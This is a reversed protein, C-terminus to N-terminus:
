LTKGDIWEPELHVSLIHEPIGHIRKRIEQDLVSITTEAIERDQIRMGSLGKCWKEGVHLILCAFGIDAPIRCGMEKLCYYQGFHFGIVADPRWKQFWEEFAQRDNLFGTFPPVKEVVADDRDQRELIGALRVSDDPLHPQHRCIAAGIRRYGAALVKDWVTQVSLYVDGIVRHYKHKWSTNTNFIVTFESLDLEYAISNERMLRGIIVGCYGQQYLMTEFKRASKVDKLNYPDLFYGYLAASERLFHFDGAQRKVDLPDESDYLYALPMLNAKPGKLRNGSGMISFVMNPRYGMKRALVQIKEKTDRAILPSNRLARSVTSKDVGAECAIHIITPSKADHRPM